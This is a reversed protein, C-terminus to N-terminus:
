DASGEAMKGDLCFWDMKLRYTDDNTVHVSGTRTRNRKGGYTPTQSVSARDLKGARVHYIKWNKPWFQSIKEMASTFTESCINAKTIGPYDYQCTQLHYKRRDNLHWDNSVAM